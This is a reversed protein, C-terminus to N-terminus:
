DISSDLSADGKNNIKTYVYYAALTTIATGAVIFVTNKRQFFNQISKGIASLISEREGSSHDM